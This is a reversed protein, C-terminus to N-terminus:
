PQPRITLIRVAPGAPPPSKQVSVATVARASGPGYAAARVWLIGNSDVQPDGDGDSPDDAVWAAVYVPVSAGPVLGPLSGSEYLRWAQPDGSGTDAEAAVDVTLRRLDLPPGGWPPAPTATADVARGPAASLPAAGAALVASWSPQQRLDAVALHAAALSAERLLRAARDHAALESEATGMLVVAMGLGMLLVTALMASLVAM